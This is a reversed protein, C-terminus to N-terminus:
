FTDALVGALPYFLRGLSNYLLSYLFSGLAQNIEDKFLLEQIIKTACYFAFSEIFYVFLLLLLGKGGPLPRRACSARCRGFTPSSVSSLRAIPTQLLPSGETLDKAKGGSM